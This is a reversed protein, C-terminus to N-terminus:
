GRYWVKLRTAVDRLSPELEFLSEESCERYSGGTESACTEIAHSATAATSKAEADSGKSGQALLSPLAIAALVGIVAVAVLLEMLTFASETRVASWVPGHRTSTQM